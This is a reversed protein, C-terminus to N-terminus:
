AAPVAHDAVYLSVDDDDSRGLARFLRGHVSEWRSVLYMEALPEICTVVVVIAIAGGVVQLVWHVRSFAVLLAVAVAVAGTMRLLGDRRPPAEVADYPLPESERIATRFKYIAKAVAYLLTLPEIISYTILTKGDPRVAVVATVFVLAYVLGQTAQQHLRRRVSVVSEM